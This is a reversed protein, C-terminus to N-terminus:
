LSEAARIQPREDTVMREPPNPRDEFLSAGIRVLTGDPVKELLKPLHVPDPEGTIERIARRM